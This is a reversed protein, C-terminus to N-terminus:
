GEARRLPAEWHHISDTDWVPVPDGAVEWVDPTPGTDTDIIRDQTRGTSANTFLKATSVAAQRGDETAETASGRGIRGEVQSSEWTTTVSGDTDDVTHTPRSLTLPRLLRAPLKGPAAQPSDPVILPM